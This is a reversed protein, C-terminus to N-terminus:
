GKVAGATLGAIFQRQIFVFLVLTPLVTLVSGASLLGWEVTYEGGLFLQIAVPLTRTDLGTTLLLAYLYENWSVITIFIMTAAIGPVSLPLIVRLFASFPGCGDVMAAEELQYPLTDFFGTLTWVCYPVTTTCHALMIAFHSNYIGVSKFIIYLPIMLLVAPFMYVLLTAGLLLNRGPFSYRSFAYGASISVLLSIIGVGVAVIVSNRFYIGFPAVRFVRWYNELTLRRPIYRVKDLVIDAEPKLSTLVLWLFPGLCLAVVLLAPLYVTLLRRVVYNLSPGRKM